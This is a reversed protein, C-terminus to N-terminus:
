PEKADQPELKQPERLLIVKMRDSSMRNTKANEDANAVPANGMGILFIRYVPIDDNLVLYRVVSKAM